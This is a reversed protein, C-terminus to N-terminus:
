LRAEKKLVEGSKVAEDTWAFRVKHRAWHQTQPAL